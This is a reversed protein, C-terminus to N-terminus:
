PMAIAEYASPSSVTLIVRFVHGAGIASHDITNCNFQKSRHSIVTLIDNFVSGAGRALYNLTNCNVSGQREGHDLVRIRVQSQTNGGGNAAILNLKLKLLANRTFAVIFLIWLEFNSYPCFNVVLVIKGESLTAYVLISAEINLCAILPYLYPM